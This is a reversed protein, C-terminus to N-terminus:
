LIGTARSIGYCGLSMVAVILILVLSLIVWSVGWAFCGENSNPTPGPLLFEHEADDGTPVNDEAM